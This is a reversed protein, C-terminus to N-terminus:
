PRRRLFRGLRRRPSRTPATATVRTAPGPSLGRLLQRCFEFQEEPTMELFNPPPERYIRPGPDTM